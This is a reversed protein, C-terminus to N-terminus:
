RRITALTESRHLCFLLAIPVLIGYESIFLTNNHFFTNALYAILFSCFILSYPFPRKVSLYFLWLLLGLYVLLGFLSFDRGVRLFGNHMSIQNLCNSSEHCFSKFIESYHSSNFYLPNEILAMFGSLWAVQRESLGDGALVDSFSIIRNFLELQGSMIIAITILSLLLIALIYRDRKLYLQIFTISLFMIVSGLILSRTLTLFSVVLVFIFWFYYRKKQEHIYAYLSMAMIPILAYSLIIPGGYPGSPRILFKNKSFQELYSGRSTLDQVMNGSYFNQHISYSLDSFPTLPHQIFALLVYPSTIIIFFIVGQIGLRSFSYHALLYFILFIFVRMLERLITELDTSDNSIDFIVIFTRFFIMLLIILTFIYFSQNNLFEKFFYPLLLLFVLM